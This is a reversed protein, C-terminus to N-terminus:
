QSIWLGRYHFVSVAYSRSFNGGASCSRLFMNNKYVRSVHVLSEFPRKGLLLLNVIGTAFCISQIIKRTSTVSYGSSILKESIAKGLFTCPLMSLWPVMNVLWGQLRRMFYSITDLLDDKNKKKKPTAEIVDYADRREAVSGQCRSVHRSLVDADM